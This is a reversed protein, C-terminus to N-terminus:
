PRPSSSRTIRWAAPLVAGALFIKIVDAPFFPTLGAAIAGDLGVPTVIALWAVGFTFIVALGAAMALVSTLYRRDFGREALWGAVFAAVPFAMLYGGTPGIL